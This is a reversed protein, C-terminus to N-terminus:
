LVAKKNYIGNHLVKDFARICAAAPIVLICAIANQFICTTPSIIYAVALSGVVHLESKRPSRQLKTVMDLEYLISIEDAIVTHYLIM